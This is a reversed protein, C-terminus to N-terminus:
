RIFTFFRGDLALPQPEGLFSHVGSSWQNLGPLDFAREAFGAVKL